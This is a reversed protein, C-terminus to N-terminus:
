VVIELSSTSIMKKKLWYILNTNFVGFLASWLVCLTYLPLSSTSFIYSMLTDMRSCTPYVQYAESCLIHGILHCEIVFIMLCKLNAEATGIIFYLYLFSTVIIVTWWKWVQQHSELNSMSCKIQIVELVKAYNGNFPNHM